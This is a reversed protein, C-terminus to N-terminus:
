GGTGKQIFVSEGAYYPGYNDNLEKNFEGTPSISDFRDLAYHCQYVPFIFQKLTDFTMEISADLTIIRSANKILAITHNEYRFIEYGGPYPNVDDALLISIADNSSANFVSGSTDMVKHSQWENSTWAKSRDTLIAGDVESDNGYEGSNMWLCVRHGGDGDNQSLDMVNHLTIYGKTDIAKVMKPDGWGVVYFSKVGGDMSANHNRLIRQERNSIKQYSYTIEHFVELEKRTSLIHQGLINRHTSRVPIRHCSDPMIFPHFEPM